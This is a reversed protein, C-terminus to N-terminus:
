RSEGEEVAFSIKSHVDGFRQNLVEQLVEATPPHYDDPTEITLTFEHIM